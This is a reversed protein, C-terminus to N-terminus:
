ERGGVTMESVRILPQGVNTPVSGSLSGCMGQGLALNNGVRDIRMLVEDGKGILTAGRVPHVIAGNKVIYGEAVAFNFEATVPNVSGGGMKACYLGDAMSSIVDTDTGNLIFTNTMRSTPAFKYSQRRGSGTIQMGMRRANLKDIMYGKLIGNEILVNRQSPTGEDDVNISGWENPMTGDDVASVITSAIQKGMKGCFVSSDKAVSTAELGHACAEHFIVGGFANEIAVPMRGAPCPPAGLMTIAIRAAEKGVDEVNIKEFFEFGMMAGPADYGTQNGNAGSAVANVGFRTRVRRDEVFTGETNAILVKQDTSNLSVTVQAIAPNYQKAVQFANQMLTVKKQAPVFAPLMAIPHINAAIAGMVNVAVDGSLKGIASAAARACALLGELNTNNTYAYAMSLGKFVRIGAGHERGTSVREVAGDVMSLGSIATDELFIEAFDGGGSLACGLVAEAVKQTIM